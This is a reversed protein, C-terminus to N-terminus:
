HNVCIAHADVTWPQPSGDQDQVATVDVTKLDRDPRVEDLYVQGFGSTIDGGVGLLHKGTPCSISVRKFDESDLPSRVSILKLGPPPSACAAYATVALLADTGDQDEFSTTTVSTLDESPAVGDLVLTEEGVGVRSGGAGVVRKGAPCTATATKSQDSTFESSAEVVELGPLPTACIGYGTISWTGEHGDQDERASAFVETPPDDNFFGFQNLIVQGLGGTIEAGTGTLQKGGQCTARPEAFKEFASDRPGTFSIRTAVNACIAYATLTWNPAYGDEDEFGRAVGQTPEGSGPSPYTELSVQGSQGSAEGGVGVLAQGAPCSAVVDPGGATVVGSASVRQLGHPGPACVAYASVTWNGGFGNQDERAAVTAARLAQDPRLVDIVVQGSGGATEGGLGVLRKGTPCTATVNKAASSSASTKAVRVLGPLPACLAYASPQWSGAFGTEDERFTSLVSKLDPSPRAALLRVQGQGTVTQAAAAGVVQKGTPCTVTASKSNVSDTAGGVRVSELGTVAALSVGPALGGFLAAVGLAM